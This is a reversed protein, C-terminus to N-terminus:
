FSYSFQLVVADVSPFLDLSALAGPQEFGNNTPQQTYYEARVSMSHGNSLKTGYELGLTYTDMEGIRYDASAFQPVAAAANLFPQYFEAASQQYYRFHPELYSDDGLLLRWRSDVTHSTIEWDDWMYRYSLDVISNDFHYKTQWYLSQKTREDPRNEYQYDQTLGDNNVVSLVKFPDTQYGDVMSYSYNFQMLMRRNIIQTVGVLLDTTTKDDQDTRRTSNFTDDWVASESDGIPMSAFAKPIGGEPTFTDSFYSGGLSLTTNKKNFDIALNGNVGLSLYDYEKSIHVSGSVTYDQALPQTWQANLQVRTDRFTDDLPTEGPQIDYQGNGSPRTFTQVNPQAVAGNASAGTLTDLTLRLNLFHEDAFEKNANIMAETAMVRDTEGYYLVATDFQWDKNIQAEAPATGLLACAALGLASAINSTQNKETQSDVLQM